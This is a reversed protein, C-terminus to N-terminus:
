QTLTEYFCDFYRRVKARVAIPDTPTLHTMLEDVLADFGRSQVAPLLVGTLTPFLLDKQFGNLQELVEADPNQGLVFARFNEAKELLFTFRDSSMDLKIM